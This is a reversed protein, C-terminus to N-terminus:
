KKDGSLRDFKSTISKSISYQQVFVCLSFLEDIYSSKNSYFWKYREDNKNIEPHRLLQSYRKAKNVIPQDSYKKFTPELLDILEHLSREKDEITRSCLFYIIADSINKPSQDAVSESVPDIKMIEVRNKIADIKYGISKLSTDVLNIFQEIVTNDLGIPTNNPELVYELITRLVQIYCLFENTLNEKLSDNLNNFYNKAPLANCYNFILSTNDLLCDNIDGYVSSLEKSFVFFEELVDFVTNRNVCYTSDVFKKIKFYEDVPNSVYNNIRDFISKYMNEEKNIILM